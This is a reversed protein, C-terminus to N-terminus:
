KYLQWFYSIVYLYGAQGKGIQVPTVSFPKQRDVSRPDDGYIPM